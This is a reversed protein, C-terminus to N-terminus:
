LKSIKMTELLEQGSYVKIVYTGPTLGELGLRFVNGPNRLVQQRAMQGSTVNFIGVTIDGTLAKDSSITTFSNAPNPYAFIKGKEAAFSLRAINSFAFTADNDVMRIRYLMTGSFAAAEEFQYHRVLDSNGAAKIKSVVTWNKGDTSRQVEFFDSNLEQATTWNLQVKGNNKTATFSVLTVPLSIASAASSAFGASSNSGTSQQPSTVARLISSTGSSIVFPTTTGSAPGEAKRVNTRVDENSCAYIGRDDWGNVTNGNTHTPAISTNGDSTRRYVRNNPALVEADNTYVTPSGSWTPYVNLMRIEIRSEAALSIRGHYFTNQFVGTRLEISSNNCGRLRLRSNTGLLLIGDRFDPTTLGPRSGGRIIITYNNSTTNHNTSTLTLSVGVVELVSGNPLESSPTASITGNANVLRYNSPTFFGNEASVTQTADGNGIWRYTAQANASSVSFALMLFTFIRKM